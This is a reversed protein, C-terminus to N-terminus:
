VHNVRFLLSLQIFIIRINGVIHLCIGLYMKLCKGDLFSSCSGVMLSRTLNLYSPNHLHINYKWLATIPNGSIVEEPKSMIQHLKGNIIVLFSLIMFEGGFQVTCKKVSRCLRMTKGYNQFQAHHSFFTILDGRGELM